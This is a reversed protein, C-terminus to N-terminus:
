NTIKAINKEFMENVIFPINVCRLRNEEIDLGEEVIFFLIEKLNNCIYDILKPNKFCVEDLFDKESLM